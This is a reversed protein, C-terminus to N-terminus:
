QQCLKRTNYNSAITDRILDMEEESILQELLNLRLQYKRKKEIILLLSNGLGRDSFISEILPDHRTDITTRNAEDSELAFFNSFKIPLSIHFSSINVL